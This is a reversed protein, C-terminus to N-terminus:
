RNLELIRMHQTAPLLGSKLVILQGDRGAVYSTFGKALGEYPQRSIMYVDRALPYEHNALYAQYPFRGGTEVRDENSIAIRAVKIKSLYSLMTSDDPDSVWSVSVMGIAGPHTAVYNIVSDSTSVASVKAGFSANRVFKENLYRATAGKVNDLVLSVAQNNKRGGIQNWNSVKGRIIDQIEDLTLCSDMMSPHLIVAIGDIAIRTTKPFLKISKFYDSDQKSLPRCTVMLQSSDKLFLNLMDVEDLYSASVKAYKYRTNFVNMESDIIYQYAKDSLLHLTGTTPTDRDGLNVGGSCASLFLSGSILLLSFISNIISRKEM